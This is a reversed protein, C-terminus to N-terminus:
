CCHRHLYWTPQFSKSKQNSTILTIMSRPNLGRQHLGQVGQINVPSGTPTEIGRINGYICYMFHVFTFCTSICICSVNVTIYPVSLLENMHTCVLVYIHVAAKTHLAVLLASWFQFAALHHPLYCSSCMTSINSTLYESIYTRM